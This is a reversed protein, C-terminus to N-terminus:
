GSKKRRQEELNRVYKVGQERNELQLHELIQAMHYKIAREALGLRKGVEKYVLGQAVLRLVEWQRATLSAQSLDSLTAAPRPPTQMQNFESMLRAAMRPDIQTEGRFIDRLFGFMQNADLNKLLYGSAGYRLADLLHEEDESVTLLVVKVEPREAKIIRTAAVGDLNPMGVDMLLLDPQLTRTQEIAEQGDRALGIVTLGRAALLNRMGDLFLPQDDVLLIRLSHIDAADASSALPLIRPIHLLIQAGRGPSSRIELRGGIQAARERMIGLGFHKEPAAPALDPNFGKGNDSVIFITEQLDTNVFIEVRRAQAHKRANVLAEHIIHLVQDEVASTLLPLENDMFTFATEIGWTEGFNRLSDQLIEYFGGRTRRTERMGLIYHRLDAHAEQAVQVLRKLNEQAAPTQKEALMSQIAQAQVNIFGIVQGLGDHLDRSMREREELAITQLHEQNLKEAMKRREEAEELLRSTLTEVEATTRQGNLLIICVTWSIDFILTLFFYLVNAPTNAFINANEPAILWSVMRFSLAAAYLGLFVGFFIYLSKPEAGRYTLLYWAIQAAAAVIATSFVANRLPASNQGFTFFTVLIFAIGSLIADLTYTPQQRGVFKRMGELRFLAGVIGVTNAVPITLFDPALGRLAFLVYTLANLGTGIAWLDFGAHTKQSRGYAVLTVTMYINVLTIALFITKVDLM